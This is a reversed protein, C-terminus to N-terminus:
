TARTKSFLISASSIKSRDHRPRTHPGTATSHCEVPRDVIPLHNRCQDDAPSQFRDGPVPRAESREWPSRPRDQLSHRPVVVEPTMLDPPAQYCVAVSSPPIPSAAHLSPAAGRRPSSPLFSAGRRISAITTLHCLDDACTTLSLVPHWSFIYPSSSVM